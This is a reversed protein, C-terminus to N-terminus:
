LRVERCGLKRECQRQLRGVEEKAFYREFSSPACQAQEIYNCEIWYSHAAQIRHGKEKGLEGWESVGWGLMGWAQPRSAV